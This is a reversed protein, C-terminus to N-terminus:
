IDTTEINTEVEVDKLSPVGLADRIAHSIFPLVGDVKTTVYVNTNQRLMSDYTNYTDKDYIKLNDGVMFAFNIQKHEM